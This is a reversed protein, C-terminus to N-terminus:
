AKPNVKLIEAADEAIWEVEMSILDIPVEFTFDSSDGPLTGKGVVRLETTKFGLFDEPDNYLSVQFDFADREIGEPTEISFQLGSVLDEDGAPAKIDNFADLIRQDGKHFLTTIIDSNMRLRVPDQVQAGYCLDTLGALGFALM